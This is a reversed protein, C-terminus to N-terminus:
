MLYFVFFGSVRIRLRSLTGLNLARRRTDNYVDMCVDHCLLYGLKERTGDRLWYYKFNAGCAHYNSSHFRTQM